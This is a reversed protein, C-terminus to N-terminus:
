ANNVPSEQKAVVQHCKIIKRKRAANPMPPSHATPADMSESVQGAFHRGQIAATSCLPTFKPTTTAVMNPSARVIRGSLTFIRPMSTVLKLSRASNKTPNSGARIVKQILFCTGSGSSHCSALFFVTVGPIVSRNLPLIRRVVMRVM